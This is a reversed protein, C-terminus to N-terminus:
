RADGARTQGNGTSWAERLAALFAAGYKEIRARGVGEIEGLGATANV